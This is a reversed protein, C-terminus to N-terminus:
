MCRPPSSSPRSLPLDAICLRLLREIVRPICDSPRLPHRRVSHPLALSLKLKDSAAEAYGRRQAIPARFAAPRAARLATRAVRFSNMAVVAPTPLANTIASAPTSARCSTRRIGFLKADRAGNAFASARLHHISSGSLFYWIGGM